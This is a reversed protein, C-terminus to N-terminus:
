DKRGSMHVFAVQPAHFLQMMFQKMLAWSSGHEDTKRQREPSCTNVIAVHSMCHYSIIGIKNQKTKQDGVCLPDFM